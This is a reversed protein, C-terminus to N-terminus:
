NNETIKKKKYWKGSASPQQGIISMWWRHAHIPLFFFQVVFSPSFLILIMFIVCIHPFLVFHPFSVVRRGKLKYIKKKFFNKSLLYSCCFIDGAMIEVIERITQIKIFEMVIVQISCAFRFKFSFKLLHALLCKLNQAKWFKRIKTSKYACKLLVM